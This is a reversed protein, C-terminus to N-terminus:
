DASVTEAVTGQSFLREKEGKVTNIVFEMLNVLSEPMQVRSVSAWCYFETPAVEWDKEPQEANVARLSLNHSICHRAHDLLEQALQRYEDEMTEPRDPDYGLVLPVAETELKWTEKVSWREYLRRQAYVDEGSLELERSKLADSLRSSGYQEGGHPSVETRKKLFQRAKYIWKNM